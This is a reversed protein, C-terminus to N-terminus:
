YTIENSTIKLQKNSGITGHNCATSEWSAGAGASAIVVGENNRSLHSQISACSLSEDVEEEM